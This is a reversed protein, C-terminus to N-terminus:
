KMALKEVRLTNNVEAVHEYDARKTWPLASSVKVSSTVIKAKQLLQTMGEKINELPVKDMTERTGGVIVIEKVKFKKAAKEM